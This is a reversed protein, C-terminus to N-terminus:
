GSNQKALVAWGALGAPLGQAEFQMAISLGGREGGRRAFIDHGAVAVDLTSIPRDNVLASYTEYDSVDGSRVAAQLAAM